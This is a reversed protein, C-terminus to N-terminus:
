APAIGVHLAECYRCSALQLNGFHSRVFLDLAFNLKGHQYWNKALESFNPKSGGSTEEPEMNSIYHNLLDSSPRVRSLQSFPLSALYDEDISHANPAEKGRMRYITDLQDQSDLSLPHAEGLIRRRFELVELQLIEAEELQNNSLYVLVFRAAEDLSVNEGQLLVSNVHSAVLQRFKLEEYDDRNPDVALALLHTAVRCYFPADSVQTIAIANHICPPM